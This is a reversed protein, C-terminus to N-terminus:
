AQPCMLHSGTPVPATMGEAAWVRLGGALPGGHHPCLHKYTGPQGNGLPGQEWFISSVGSLKPALVPPTAVSTSTHASRSSSRTLRTSPTAVQPPASPEAPSQDRCSSTSSGSSALLLSGPPLLVAKPGPQCMGAARVWLAPFRTPGETRLLGQSPFCSELTALVLISCCLDM